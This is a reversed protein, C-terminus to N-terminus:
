QKRKEIFHGAVTWLQGFAVLFLFAIRLLVSFSSAAQWAMFAIKFPGFRKTALSVGGKESSRHIGVKMTGSYFRMRFYDSLSKPWRHRVISTQCFVVNLGHEIIQRGFDRDGGKVYSKDFKLGKNIVDDKRVALNCTDVITPSIVTEGIRDRAMSLDRRTFQVLTAVFNEPFLNDKVGVVASADPRKLFMHATEQLWRSDAEADDDTFALIDGDSNSLASNRAPNVGIEPCLVYKIPLDPKFSEAMEYTNDTSANDVVVVEDPMLTQQKLSTLANALLQARNRTVIAVSIKETQDTKQRQNM